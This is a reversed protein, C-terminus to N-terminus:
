HCCYTASCAVYKGRVPRAVGWQQRPGPAPTPIIPDEEWGFRELFLDEPRNEATIPNDIPLDPPDPLANTTETKRRITWERQDASRGRLQPLLAMLSDWDEGKNPVVAYPLRALSSNIASKSKSLLVQLQRINLALTDNPLWCLGCVVSRISDGSDGRVCFQRVEDFLRQMIELRRHRKYRNDSSSIRAQLTRYAAQDHRFLHEFFSPTTLPSVNM